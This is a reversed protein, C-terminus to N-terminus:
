LQRARRKSQGDGQEAGRSRPGNAVSVQHSASIPPSESASLRRLASSLLSLVLFVWPSDGRGGWGCTNGSHTTSFWRPGHRCLHVLRLLIRLTRRPLRCRHSAVDFPQLFLVIVRPTSRIRHHFLQGALAVIKPHVTSQESKDNSQVKGVRGVKNHTLQRGMREVSAFTTQACNPLKLQSCFARSIISFLRCRKLIFTKPGHSALSACILGVAMGRGAM